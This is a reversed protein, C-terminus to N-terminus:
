LHRMARALVGAGAISAGARLLDELADAAAPLRQLLAEVLRTGAALRSEADLGHELLWQRANRHEDDALQLFLAAREAPLWERVRAHFGSVAAWHGFRL